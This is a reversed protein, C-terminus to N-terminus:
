DLSELWERAEDIDLFSRTFSGRNSAVTEIFELSDDDARRVVAVRLGMFAKPVAEAFQFSEVVGTQSQQDRGDIILKHVAKDRCFDSMRDLNELRDRYTIPGAWHFVAIDSEPIIKLSYSM